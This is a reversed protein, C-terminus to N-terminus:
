LQTLKTLLHEKKKRISPNNTSLVSKSAKYSLPGGTVPGTSSGRATESRSLRCHIDGTEGTSQVTFLSRLSIGITSAEM